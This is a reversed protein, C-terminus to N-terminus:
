EYKGCLDLCFTGLDDANSYVCNAITKKLGHVMQQFAINSCTELHTEEDSDLHHSPWNNEVNLSSKLVVWFDSLCTLFILATLWLRGHGLLCFTTFCEDWSLFLLFHTDPVHIRIVKMDILELSPSGLIKVECHLFFSFFFLILFNYSVEEDLFLILLLM